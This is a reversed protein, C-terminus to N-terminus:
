IGLAKKVDATVDTSLATNIFPITGGTTDIIYIYGGAEGVKKLAAIVKEQIASLKDQQAQSLAEQNDQYSQQMRQYLDQLEQERRQKINDPLTAQEKDYAESKSQLEDQMAKLDKEYTEGLAKLETQAQTYEPMAPIVDASSFHAFKQAFMSMPALMLAIILTKKM